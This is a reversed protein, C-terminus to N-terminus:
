QWWFSVSFSIALSKVYHWHKPPIYLMDGSQLVAELCPINKFKPFQELDPKDIDIQSTNHLLRTEHPYVCETHEDSYLRVYKSGMVQCLFNHKPDQHLPSITGAPGFWANIDVEEDEGLCCYVPVSIDDRLEWVQDFLQHQALYAKDSSPKTVYQDIMENITMLKQTWNEETYREGIEVPVTRCGAVTRLYDLTWRRTTLAPWYGIADTIIIPHCVDMFMAQFMEVSPCSCRPIESILQTQVTPPLDIGHSNWTSPNEMVTIVKQETHHGSGSDVARYVHACRSADSDKKESLNKSSSQSCLRAKKTSPSSNTSESENQDESLAMHSGKFEQLEPRSDETKRLIANSEQTNLNCELEKPTETSKELTLTEGDANSTTESLRRWQGLIGFARQFERSMKALINGLIPAGMLLGMDCTRLIVAHDINRGAESLLASECLAKALSVLSYAQRWCLAVDKWYGTNLEEWIKDLAPQCVDLCSSYERSYLLSVVRELVSLVASSMSSSDVVVRMLDRSDEPLLNKCASPPSLKESEDDTLDLLKKAEQKPSSSSFM